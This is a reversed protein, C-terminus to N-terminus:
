VIAEGRIILYNKNTVRKIQTKVQLLRTKASSFYDKKHRFFDKWRILM